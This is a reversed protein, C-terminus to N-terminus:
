SPSRKAPRMRPLLMPKGRPLRMKRPKLRRTLKQLQKKKLNKRRPRPRLETPPNLKRPRKETRRQKMLETLDM